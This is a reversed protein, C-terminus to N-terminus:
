ILHKLVAVISSYGVIHVASAKLWALAKSGATEVKAVGLSVDHGAASLVADLHQGLTQPQITAM